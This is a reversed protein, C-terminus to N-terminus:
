VTDVDVTRLNQRAVHAPRGARLHHQLVRGDVVGDQLGGATANQTRPESEVAAIDGDDGIDRRVVEAQLTNIRDRVQRADLGYHRLRHEAVASGHEVRVVLEGGLHSARGTALDDKEAHM